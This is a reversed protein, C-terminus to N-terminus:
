VTLVSVPSIRFRVDLIMSPFYLQTPLLVVILFTGDGWIIRDYGCRVAHQVFVIALSNRFAGNDAAARGFQEYRAMSAYEINVRLKHQVPVEGSGVSRITEIHM